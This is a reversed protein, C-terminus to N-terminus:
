IKEEAGTKEMGFMEQGKKMMVSAESRMAPVTSM